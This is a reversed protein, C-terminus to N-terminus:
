NEWRVPTFAKGGGSYFKGFFEHYELRLTQIFVILGELVAIVVNGAAFVIFQIVTGCPLGRVLQSLMIVAMSLGVHNLAFAALRVFSATSSLFSLLVEVIGFAGMVVSGGTKEKFLARALVNKFLMLLLMLGAGAWLLNMVTESFKINLSFVVVLVAVFWYLLLGALGQGDFLMKAYNKAKYQKVVNLFMGLNITCFGVGVSVAMIKLTEKMPSLWLAPFVDELGFISGYLVGFIMSSVAACKLIFAFSRQVINMKRAYIAALLIILGHGIDGFMFGFFFTFTAAVLLSPDFDGRSPLSYMAVIEQFASFLRNNNLLTPVPINLEKTEEPLIVTNPAENLIKTQIEDVKEAPVWGTMVFMGSIEGHGRCAEYVRQMTYLGSYLQEYHGRNSELLQAAASQLDVADARRKELLKDAASLLDGDESSLTRIISDTSFETFSFADLLMQLSDQKDSAAFILLWSNKDTQSLLNVSVFADDESILREYNENSLKGFRSVLFEGGHLASPKFETESFAELLAKVAELKEEEGSLAANQKQLADLSQSVKETQLRAETLTFDKTLNAAEPMPLNEQALTWFQSVTKLLEDYPNETEATIKGRLNKDNVLRDIPFPQFCGSAAMHLAAPELEEKPGTLTLASMKMVAM